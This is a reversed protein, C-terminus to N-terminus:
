EGNSSMLGLTQAQHNIPGSLFRDYGGEIAIKFAMKIESEDALRLAAILPAHASTPDRLPDLASSRLISVFAFLPTTLQDLIRFLTREGVKGLHLPSLAPRVSGRRFLREPWRSHCAGGPTLPAPSDGVGPDLETSKLRSTWPLASLTSRSLSDIRRFVVRRVHIRLWWAPQSQPDCLNSRFWRTKRCPVCKARLAM